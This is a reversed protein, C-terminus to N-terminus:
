PAQTPAEKKKRMESKGEPSQGGTSPAESKGSRQQPTGHPAATEGGGQPADKPASKDADEGKGDGKIIGGPLEEVEGAKPKRLLVRDGEVLGERIEVYTENAKGISVTKRKVRGGDAPVYVFRNRGQTFVAHIPVAFVNVARNVFIQGSCRMGPNLAVPGDEGPVGLEGRKKAQTSVTTGSSGLNPPLEVRVEYQRVDPNYWSGEEAMTAKQIIVGEVPRGRLADINVSVKQGVAIDPMRSEPVKLIAIMQSTDPLIILNENYLADRNKGIPTDRRSRGSGVSSAYVVIGDSPARMTCYELQQELKALREQKLELSRVASDFNAQATAIKSTNKRITRDLSARAEEVDSTFKKEEQPKTYQEYVTIDKKATELASDAQKLKLMDQDYEDRSIFQAEILKKAEDSRRRAIILNDEAEVLSLQLKRKTQELTGDRWKALELESLALKVEDARKLSEAESKEIALAQEKAIKDTEAKQVAEKSEEIQLKITDDALRILVDDKYVRTGEDVIDTITTKGEVENRIFLKNKADLEGTATVIIDFNTRRVTHWEPNSNSTAQQDEGDSNSLTTIGKAVAILVSVVLIVGVVVKSAAGRQHQCQLRASCLYISRTSNMDHMM